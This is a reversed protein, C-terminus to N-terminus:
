RMFKKAKVMLLNLWCTIQKIIKIVNEVEVRYNKIDITVVVFDRM